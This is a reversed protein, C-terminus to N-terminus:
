EAVNIASELRSAISDFKSGHDEVWAMANKLAEAINTHQAKLGSISKAERKLETLLSEIEGINFEKERSSQRAAVTKSWLYALRVVRPDPNERDLVIMLKNGHFEQWEPQNELDDSDAVFVGCDAQRHKIAANLEESVAPLSLLKKATKFGGKQTKSEWIVRFGKGPAGYAESFTVLTDGVKTSGGGDAGVFEAVDGHRLSEEKILDDVLMEFENGKSASKSKQEKAGKNKDLQSIITELDAKITAFPSDESEPRLEDIIDRLVREKFVSILSTSNGENLQNNFTNQLQTIIGNQTQELQEKARKLSSEIERVEAQSTVTALTNLGFQMAETLFSQQNEEPISQLYQVLLQSEFEFETILIKTKEIKYKM